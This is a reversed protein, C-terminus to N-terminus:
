CSASSLKAVPFPVPWGKSFVSPRFQEPMSLDNAPHHRYQEVNAELGQQASAWQVECGDTIIGEGWCTRGHLRAALTLGYEHRILNVVAARNGKGTYPDTELFVFDYFGSFGEKDLVELFGEQTVEVPLNDLLLTTPKANFPWCPGYTWEPMFSGEPAPPPACALEAASPLCDDAELGSRDTCPVVFACGKNDYKIWCWLQTASGDAHAAAVADESTCPTIKVGGSGDGQISCWMPVFSEQSPVQMEQGQHQPAATRPLELDELIVHSDSYSRLKQLGTWDSYARPREEIDMEDEYVDIFTNKLYLVGSVERSFTHERSSQIEWENDQDEISSPADQLEEQEGPHTSTFTEPTFVDHEKPPLSANKLDIMSIPLLDEPGLEDVANLLALEPSAHRSGLLPSPSSSLGM